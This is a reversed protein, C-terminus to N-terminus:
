VEPVQKTSLSYFDPEAQQYGPFSNNQELPQIPHNCASHPSPRYPTQEALKVFVASQRRVTITVIHHIAPDSRIQMLTNRYITPKVPM